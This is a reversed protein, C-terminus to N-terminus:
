DKVYEAHREAVLTKATAADVEKEAGKKIGFSAALMRVKKTAPKSDTATESPKAATM